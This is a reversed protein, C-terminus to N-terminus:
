GSFRQFGIQKKEEKPSSILNTNLQDGTNPLTITNKSKVKKKNKNMQIQNKQVNNNLNHHKNNDSKSQTDTSNYDTQKDKEKNNKGSEIDGDNARSQYFQQGTAKRFTFDVMNSRNKTSEMGDDIKYEILSFIHYSDGSYDINYLAYPIEDKYSNKLLANIIDIKDKAIKVRGTIIHYDKSLLSLVQNADWIEQYKASSPRLKHIGTMIRTIFPDNVIDTQYRLLLLQNLM